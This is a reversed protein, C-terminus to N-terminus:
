TSCTLGRGPKWPKNISLMSLSLSVPFDTVGHKAAFYQMKRILADIRPQMPYDNGAEDYGTNWFVYKYKWLTRGFHGTPEKRAKRRLYSEVAEKGLDRYFKPVVFTKKRTKSM